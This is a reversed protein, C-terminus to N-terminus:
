EANELLLYKDIKDYEPRHLANRSFWMGCAVTVVPIAIFAVIM